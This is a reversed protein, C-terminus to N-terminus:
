IKKRSVIDRRLKIKAMDKINETADYSFSEIIYYAEPKEVPYCEMKFFEGLQQALFKNDLVQKLITANKPEFLNNGIKRLGVENDNIKLRPPEM